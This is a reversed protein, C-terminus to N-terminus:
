CLKQSKHRIQCKNASRISFKPAVHCRRPLLSLMRSTPLTRALCLQLEFPYNLAICPVFPLSPPPPTTLIASAMNHMNLNTKNEYKKVRRVLAVLAALSSAIQPAAHVYGLCSFAYHFHFHFNFLLWVHLTRRPCNRAFDHSRNLSFSAQNIAWRNRPQGVGSAASAM